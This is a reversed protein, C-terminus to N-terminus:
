IRDWSKPGTVGSDLWEWANVKAAANKINQQTIHTRSKM